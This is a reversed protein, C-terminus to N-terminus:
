GRFVGANKMIKFNLPLFTIENHILFPFSSLLPFFDLKSIMNGSGKFIINLLGFISKTCNAVFIM